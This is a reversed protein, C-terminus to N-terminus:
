TSDNKQSIIHHLKDMALLDLYDKMTDVDISISRDLVEVTHVLEPYRKFLVRAGVDGGLNAMLDDFLVRGIIVPNGRVGQFVPMIICKQSERFTQILLNITRDDVLPQDGLLFMVGDVSEDVGSLGARLSTSQGERFDHNQIVTVGEFDIFKQITSAKHGLVVVIPSLLSARANRIVQGLITTDRFPLLQKTPGIRRAMGAALVVGAVRKLSTRQM